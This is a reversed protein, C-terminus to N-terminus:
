VEAQPVIIDLAKPLVEIQLHSSVIERDDCIFHQEHETEVIASKCKWHLIAAGGSQFLSNGAWQLLSLFDSDQLLIVDLWGDDISIGSGLSLGAIGSSGSNTVTLSVGSVLQEVGDITLMYQQIPSDAIAKLASIGYALQGFNNKSARDTQLVMDAMIGSNIRLLFYENNVMAMDVAKHKYNSKLLTLAEISQLPINLEKAMVNATGGPVIAMPKNTGIMAAAVETISGDGGYVAVLDTNGIVKQVLEQMNTTRKTVTVDWDIGSDDFVSNIYSLIPEEEGAAPNVIFHIHQFAM